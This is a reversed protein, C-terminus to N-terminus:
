NYLFEVGVIIISCQKLDFYISISISLNFRGPKLNIEISNKCTNSSKSYLMTSDTLSDAIIQIKKTITDKECDIFATKIKFTIIANQSFFLQSFFLLLLYYKYKM